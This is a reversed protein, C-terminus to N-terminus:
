SITMWIHVHPTKHLLYEFTSGELKWADWSTNGSKGLRFYTLKLPSLSPDDRLMKELKRSRFPAIVDALLRQAVRSQTEDLDSLPLGDEGDSETCRPTTNGSFAVLARAKQDSNLSTFLRDAFEEQSAWVNETRSSHGFSIPGQFESGTPSNGDVRLRVHRGTLHCEFRRGAGPEGFLAVKYSEFGGQDDRMVRTFRQFGIESCLNKLIELCLTRQQTSLESIM